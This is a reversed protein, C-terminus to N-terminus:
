DRGLLFHVYERVLKQNDENLQKYEGFLAAFDVDDEKFELGLYWDALKNAEKVPSEEVKKEWGLIYEPTTELLKSMAEVRDSPINTVVGNEYKSITQKTTKLAKAMEEQTIGKEIRLKKIREGKTM